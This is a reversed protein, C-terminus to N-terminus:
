FSISRLLFCNRIFIKSHDLMPSGLTKPHLALRTKALTAQIFQATLEFSRMLCTNVKAAQVKTQVM